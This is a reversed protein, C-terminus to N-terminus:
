PKHFRTFRKSEEHVPMEYAKFDNLEKRIRAKDVATLRTWPKDVARDYEETDTVEVYDNFRIIRKERLEQITPRFSLKRTLYKIIQQKETELAAESKNHLINRCQLEEPTPRQSLRRELVSGIRDREERREQSPVRRVSLIQRREVKQSELFRALSDKRKIKAALGSRPAAGATSSGGSTDAAAASSPSTNATTVAAPRTGSRSAKDKGKSGPLKIIGREPQRSLDPQKAPVQEYGEMGPVSDDAEEDGDISSDEDIDDDDEDAVDDYFRDGSQQDVNAAEDSDSDSNHHNNNSSSNNNNTNSDDEDSYDNALPSVPVTASASAALLQQQRQILQKQLMLHQSQGAASSYSLDVTPASSISQNNNNNHHQQKSNASVIALPRNDSVSTEGSKPTSSVHRLMSMGPPQGGGAGGLAAPGVPLVPVGGSVRATPSASQLGPSPVSNSDFGATDPAEVTDAAGANAAQEELLKPQQGNKKKRKWKWPKLLKGLGALKHGRHVGATASKSNGSASSGSTAVPFAGDCGDSSGNEALAAALEQASLSGRVATTGTQEILGLSNVCNSCTHDCNAHSCPVIKDVISLPLKLADTPEEEVNKLNSANNEAAGSHIGNLGQTPVSTSRQM